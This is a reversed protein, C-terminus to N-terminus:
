KKTYRDWVPNQKLKGGYDVGNVKIEESYIPVYLGWLNSLRTRISNKLTTVFTTLTTKPDNSWEAQRVLDFWRKGECTFERQREQYVLSLLSAASHDKATFSAKSVWAGTKWDTTGYNNIRNSVLDTHDAEADDISPVLKPNNRRFIENVLRYGEALTDVNETGLRAIVEAKILMIDSLRYIPWHANDLTRLSYSFYDSGTGGYVNKSMDYPNGISFSSMRYKTIPYVPSNGSTSGLNCTQFARYDTKGFGNTPDVTNIGSLLGANAITFKAPKIQNNEVNSFYGVTSNKTTSGDYQLELISEGSNQSGGFIAAYVADYAGFGQESNLTYFPYPQVTWPSQLTPNPDLKDRKYDKRMQNLVWNAHEKSKNLCETAQAACYDATIEQGDATTYKGTAAGSEDKVAVDSYNVRKDDLNPKSLYNKLLCARWLYMDALLAHVGTKTFRGKNESTTGFNDVAYQVNAELSDICVGLVAVGPTAAPYERTAEEDSSIPQTIYPVDRYARVLYFYYLSRLAMMEAKIMNYDSRRFSPDVESGPVTMAAGKQIVLNCYNIGTYFPSWDFYSSTPQLVAQMLYDIDTSKKDYLEFNDGRAEGLLLIKSVVADSAMKDYAGARVNDLDAKTKYFNQEPIQGTPLVTLFDDCSTLALGSLALCGALLSKSFLRNKIMIIISTYNM